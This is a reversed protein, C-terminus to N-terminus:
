YETQTFRIIVCHSVPISPDTESLVSTWALYADPDDPQSPCGVDGTLHIEDVVEGFIEYLCYTTTLPPMAQAPEIPTMLGSSIIVMTILIAHLNKM